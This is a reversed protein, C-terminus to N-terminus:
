EKLAPQAASLAREYKAGRPGLHQLVAKLREELTADPIDGYLICLELAEAKSVGLSRVWPVLEQAREVKAAREVREAAAQARKSEIFPAGFQRKAEFQNHPRCLLRVNSASTEGGKALPVRHDFEILARDLLEQV